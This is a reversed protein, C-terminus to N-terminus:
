FTGISLHLTTRGELGLLGSSVGLSERLAVTPDKLAVGIDVAIPGVPTNWRLGAGGGASFQALDLDSADEVLEGADIFLGLDLDRSLPTRLEARFNWFFRGGSSSGDTLHLAREDTYTGADLKRRIRAVEDAPLVRDEDFGRVSGTGGLFFKKYLPVHETDSMGFINGVRAQLALTLNTTLPLYGSASSAAKIFNSSVPTTVRGPGTGTEGYLVGGGLALDAVAALHFGSHPKFPNDRLDLVAEQRFTLQGLQGTDQRRTLGGEDRGCTRYRGAVEAYCLFDTGELEVASGLSLPRWPRLDAGVLVGIKNLTFSSRNERLAVLSSHGSTDIPLGFIKPYEVTVLGQGETFLLERLRPDLGPYELDFRQELRRRVSQDSITGYFLRPYNLKLRSRAGLGLGLVNRHEVMVSGRPGDEVSAGVNAEFVRPMRERVDIRLDKIPDPQEPEVLGLDVSTFLGLGLLRQRSEELATANYDAGEKLLMRDLIVAAATRDNGQVLVRGIQVAPGEDIAFTVDAAQRDESYRIEDFVRAFAHGSDAYRGLLILRAQEVLALDLPAGPSLLASELLDFAAIAENGTIRVSRLITQVGEEVRYVAVVERSDNRWVPRPGRIRAQLYGRTTYLDRLTAAAERYSEEDYVREPDVVQNWTMPVELGRNPSPHGPPVSLLARLDGPDVDGFASASEAALAVTSRALDALEREPIGVAGRVEIDRLDARSGEDVVFRLIRRDSARDSGIGAHVSASAFGARRYEAVVLQSLRALSEDDIDEDPYLVIQRRLVAPSVAHVGEFALRYRPGRKYRLGLTVLADDEQRIEIAGARAELYGRERDRKQLAKLADEVTRADFVDGARLDIWTRLDRRAASSDADLRLARILTPPGEHVEIRVRVAGGGEAPDTTIGVVASPHGREHYLRRIRLARDELDVGDLWEGPRLGLTARVEDDSVRQAGVVDVADVRRAPIVVVRLHVGDPGPTGYIQVDSVDGLLMVRKVSRRLSRRDLPEGVRVELAARLEQPDYNDPAEVQVSRVPVDFLSPESTATGVDDARIWSPASVLALLLVFFRM